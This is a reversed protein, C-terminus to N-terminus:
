RLQEAARRLIALDVHVVGIAMALLPDVDERQRPKSFLERKIERRHGTYRIFNEPLEAFFVARVNKRGFKNRGLSNEPPVLAGAFIEVEILDLTRDTHLEEASVGFM